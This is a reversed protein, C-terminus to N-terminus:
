LIVQVESLTFTTYLIKVPRYLTQTCAKSLLLLTSSTLSTASISLVANLSVIVDYLQQLTSISLSSLEM